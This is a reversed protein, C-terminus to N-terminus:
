VLGIIISIGVRNCACKSNAVAEMIKKRYWLTRLRQKHMIIFVCGSDAAVSMSNPSIGFRDLLMDQFDKVTCLVKM